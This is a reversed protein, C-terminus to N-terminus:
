LCTLLIINHFNMMEVKCLIFKAIFCRIEFIISSYNSLSYFKYIYESIKFHLDLM